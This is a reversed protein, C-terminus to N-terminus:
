QLDGNEAEKLLQIFQRKFLAKDKEHSYILRQYNKENKIDFDIISQIIKKKENLIEISIFSIQSLLDGSPEEKLRILKLMSQLFVNDNLLNKSEALKFHYHIWDIFEQEFCLNLLNLNNEFQYLNKFLEPEENCTREILYSRALQFIQLNKTLKFKNM